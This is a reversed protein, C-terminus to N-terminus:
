PTALSVLSALADATDMNQVVVQVIASGEVFATTSSAELSVADTASGTNNATIASGAVVSGKPTMNASTLAVAGGTLNTTGIELNLTTAKAATTVAVINIVSISLIKFKHGPVWSTIVDADTIGALLIPGFTVNYVGAGAAIANSATGTSSDVLLNPKNERTSREVVASM